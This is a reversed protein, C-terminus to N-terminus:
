NRVFLLKLESMKLRRQWILGSHWYGLGMETDMGCLVFITGTAMSIVSFVNACISAGLGRPRM